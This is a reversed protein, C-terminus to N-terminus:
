ILFCVVKVATVEPLFSQSALCHRPINQMQVSLYHKFSIKKGHANIVKIFHQSLFCIYFRIGATYILVPFPRAWYFKEASQQSRASLTLHTFPIDLTDPQCLYRPGYFWASGLDTPQLVRFRWPSDQGQSQLNETTWHSFQRTEQTANENARHSNAKPGEEKEAELSSRSRSVKANKKKLYTVPPFPIVTLGSVRQHSCVSASMLWM